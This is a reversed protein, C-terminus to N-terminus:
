ASGRLAARTNKKTTEPLGVRARSHFDSFKPIQAWRLCGWASAPTVFEDIVINYIARPLGVRPRKGM